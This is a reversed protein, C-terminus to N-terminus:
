YLLCKSAREAEEDEWTGVSSIQEAGVIVLSPRAETCPVEIQGYRMAELGSVM